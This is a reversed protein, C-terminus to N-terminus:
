YYVYGNKVRYGFYKFIEENKSQSMGLSVIYDILYERDSKALDNLSM